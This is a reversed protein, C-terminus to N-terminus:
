NRFYFKNFIFINIKYNNIRLINRAININISEPKIINIHINRQTAPIGM